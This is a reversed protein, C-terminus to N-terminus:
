RGTRAPKPASTEPAILQDPPYKRLEFYMIACAAIMALLSIVMLITYADNRPKPEYGQHDRTPM